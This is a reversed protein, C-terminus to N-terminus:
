EGGLVVELIIRILAMTRPLGMQSESSATNRTKTNASNKTKHATTTEKQHQTKANPMAPIPPTAPEMRISNKVPWGAAAKKWSPMERAAPPKPSKVPM